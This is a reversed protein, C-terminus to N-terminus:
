VRGVGIDDVSAAILHSTGDFCDIRDAFGVLCVSGYVGSELVQVRFGPPPEDGPCKTVPTPKAQRGKAKSERYVCGVGLM